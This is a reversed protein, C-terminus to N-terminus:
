VLRTGCEECFISDRPIKAGCERCFKTPGITSPTRTERATALGIQSKEPKRSTAGSTLGVVIVAALAAVVILILAGAPIPNLSYPPVTTVSTSTYAFTTTVYSQGTVIKTSMSIPFTFSSSSTRCQRYYYSQSCSTYAYTSSMYGVFTSKVSYTRTAPTTATLTYLVSQPVSPIFLFALSVVSVGIIIASVLFVMKNWKRGGVGREAAAKSPSSKVTAPSKERAPTGALIAGCHKCNAFQKSTTKHCSPCEVGIRGALRFIVYLPLVVIALLFTGAAWGGAGKDGQRKADWHVLATLVVLTIVGVMLRIILIAFDEAV